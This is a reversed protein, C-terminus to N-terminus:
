RWEARCYSFDVRDLQAGRLDAGQLNVFAAEFRQNFERERLLGARALFRIVESRRVKDAPESAFSRLVSLTRATAIQRLQEQRPSDKDSRKLTLDSMAAFWDTLIADRSSELQRREEARKILAQLLDGTLAIALPVIALQVFDWITKGPIFQQNPKVDVVRDQLGTPLLQHRSAYWAPLIVSRILVLWVLWVRRIRM